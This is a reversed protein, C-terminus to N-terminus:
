LRKLLFGKRYARLGDVNDEGDVTDTLQRIVQYGGEFAALFKRENLFWAPYSAKYIEEPVHQVTIREQDGEIFATRDILIYPIKKSIFIDIWEYPKELYCLVSSLILIHPEEVSIAEDINQAFKLTGDQLNEKGYAVFHPQEVVTWHLNQQTFFRRYQFYLSGLSGGFDIVNLKNDMVASQLSELVQVSYDFEKFAVSDREYAADGNCVLHIAEAVKSLILDDDYGACEQAAAEWTKYNGSWNNASGRRSFIRRFISKIV